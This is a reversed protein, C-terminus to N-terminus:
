VEQKSFTICHQVIQSFHQGRIQLLIADTLCIWLRFIIICTTLPNKILIDVTIDIITLVVAIIYIYMCVTSGSFFIGLVLILV